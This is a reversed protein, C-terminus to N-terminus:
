TGEKPQPTDAQAENYRQECADFGDVRGRTYQENRIKQLLENFEQKTMIVVNDSISM